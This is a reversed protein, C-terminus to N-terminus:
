RNQAELAPFLRFLLLKLLAKANESRKGLRFSQLHLRMAEGLQKQRRCRYGWSFLADTMKENILRIQKKELAPYALMIKCAALLGPANGEASGTEESSINNGHLVYCAQPRTLCAFRYSRSLRVWYEYDEAIMLTENMLEKAANARLVVTSLVFCSGYELLHSFFDDSFVTVEETTQSVPALLRKKDLRTDGCGITNGDQEYQAQGVIVDVEPFDELVRQCDSLHRPLFYDDSDLLAIFDGSAALIGTNRAGAPGKNRTNSIARVPQGLYKETLWDVTGDTSGDDIVIIEVDVENQEVASTIARDILHRRNYSPIIVSFM